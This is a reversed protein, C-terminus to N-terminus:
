VCCHCYNDFWFNKQHTQMTNIDHKMYNTNFDACSDKNPSQMSKLETHVAQVNVVYM